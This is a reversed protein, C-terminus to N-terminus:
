RSSSGRETAKFTHTATFLTVQLSPVCAKCFILSPKSCIKATRNWNCYPSNGKLRGSIQIQGLFSLAYFVHLAFNKIADNGHASGAYQLTQAESGVSPVLM